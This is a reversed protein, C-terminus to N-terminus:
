KVTSRPQLRRVEAMLNGLGRPGFTRMKEIEEESFGPVQGIPDSLGEPWRVFRYLFALSKEELPPTRIRGIYGNMHEAKEAYFSGPLGETTPFILLHLRTRWYERKEQYILQHTKESIQTSLREATAILRAASLWALRENSPTDSKQDDLALEAYAKELLETAAKLVDESRGRRINYLLTILATLVGAAILLPAVDTLTVLEPALFLRRLFVSALLVVNVIFAFLSFWLAFTM